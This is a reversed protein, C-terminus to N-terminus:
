VSKCTRKQHGPEGCKSCRHPKRMKARAEDSHRRGLMPRSMNFAIIQERAKQRDEESFNYTLGRKGKNWPERGSAYQAKITDRMKQRTEESCPCGEGGKTYNCGIGNFEPDDKFTHHEAILKIELDITAQRDETSLVIERRQGHKRAVHTHHKNRGLRRAVRADDGMGVYFPRGDNTWDIYTHFM